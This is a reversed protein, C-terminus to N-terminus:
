LHDLCHFQELADRRFPNNVSNATLEYAMKHGGLDYSLTFREGQPSPELTGKDIMRFWAWPGETKLEATGAPTVEFHVANIGKGSPVQLTVAGQATKPVYTLQQGDVDLMVKTLAPDASLPRLDFRMSAQRGGLGFFKDRIAAARQFENLVGQSIGLSINNVTRWHWQASGTDVYNVLNKQFFDDM